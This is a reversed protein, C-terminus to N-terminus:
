EKKVRKTRTKSKKAPPSKKKLSMGILIMLGVALSAGGVIKAILLWDLGKEQTLSVDRENFKDAEERTIKFAEDWNWSQEGSTILIKAQYDGAVMQEGNMSIAYNFFTNPAMRAANQKREYLVTDDGKKTIQVEITMDELYNAVVNSFNVVIANRYNSQDAYVKNLALEPQPFNDTESLIVGLVYAYKNKVMTKGDPKEDSTEREMQIGGSLYGDFSTEPMNITFEAEKTAGAEVLVAEPGSVVETFKFKLSDDDEISNLGSEIVGNQNTKAAHVTTKITIPVDNPNTLSVTIKQEQGPALRLDFYGADKSIQNDPFNVKYTFGIGLDDAEVKTVNSNVLLVVLLVFFYLGKRATTKKIRM